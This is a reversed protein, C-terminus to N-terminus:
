TACRRRAVTRIPCCAIRCCSCRGAPRRDGAAGDAGGRPVPQHRLGADRGARQEEDPHRHDGDGGILVTLPIIFFIFEPTQYYFFEGLMAATTQGKFLKDSLDIFTSIYFIGLLGVFTLAAVKLALRSVYTDLLRVAPLHWAPLRIVVVTRSKARCRGRRDRRRGAWVKWRAPLTLRIPKDASRARWLLLAVGALAWCSTPCGSPWGPRCCSRGQGDAARRLRDRLLRVGRHHRARLGGAQRRTRAARGPGPRDGGARLVCVPLAFKRHLAMTPGHVSLGQARLEAARAELEPITM